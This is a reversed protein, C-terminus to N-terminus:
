ETLRAPRRKMLPRLGPKWPTLSNREEYLAVTGVVM